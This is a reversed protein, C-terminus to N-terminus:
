KGPIAKVTMQCLNNDYDLMKAQTIHNTLVRSDIGRVRIYNDTYGVNIFGDETAGTIQEWLVTRTQNSFGQAFQQSMRSSLDHLIASREKKVDDSVHNKMRAAATGPRKSYRFIHM